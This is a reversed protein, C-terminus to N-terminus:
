HALEGRWKMGHDFRGWSTGDPMNGRVMTGETYAVTYYSGTVNTIVWKEALRFPLM